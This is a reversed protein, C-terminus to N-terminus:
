TRQWDHPAQVGAVPETHDARHGGPGQPGHPEAPADAMYRAKKEQEEKSPEVRRHALKMYVLMAFLVVAFLCGIFLLTSIIGDM